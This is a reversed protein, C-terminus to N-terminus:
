RRPDNRRPDEGEDETGLAMIRLGIQVSGFTITCLVIFVALAIPGEATHTVLHRIGALDTWLVLATFGLAIGFGILAHRLVLSILPPM